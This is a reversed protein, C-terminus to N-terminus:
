PKLKDSNSNIFTLLQSSFVKAGSDNLHAVDSFLKFNTKFFPDISYDLFPTQAKAAIEKALAISKSEANKLNYYPSCVVFLKVNSHLCDTVFSTFANIKNTDLVDTGAAEETTKPEDMVKLLPIYGKNDEKRKKNFEMNGIIITFLSSNYPYISSLLKYKEFPSKLEVISRIEPHTKYYPLLSSLRDYSNPDNQFEDKGVDLIIIKPHYRALISKLVAYHYFISNGDRGVNYYSIHLNNEFTEPHYHHNARSSGFILVEATTKEMSYTTRFQLGSSQKFYYHNLVAGISFDLIVLVIILIFFNFFIKKILM